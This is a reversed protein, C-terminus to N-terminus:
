DWEWEVDGIRVTDGENIGAEELAKVIGTKQMHKYFQMRALWDEYDIRQAIR